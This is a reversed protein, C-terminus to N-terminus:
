YVFRYTTLGEDEDNVTVTVSDGDNLSYALNCSLYTTRHYVGSLSGADHYLLLDLRNASQAGDDDADLNVFGFVHSEGSALVSLRFNIYSGGRWVSQVIVPDTLIESEDLTIPTATLVKTASSVSAEYADTLVYGVIYRIVTDTPFSVSSSSAVALTDGDDLFLRSTGTLSTEVDAFDYRYSDAVDDDCGTTFLLSCILAPLLREISTM